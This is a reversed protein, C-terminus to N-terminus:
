AQSSSRANPTRPATAEGSATESIFHLVGVPDTLDLSTIMTSKQCLGHSRQMPINERLMRNSSIRFGINCHFCFGVLHFLLIARVRGHSTLSSNHSRTRGRMGSRGGWRLPPHGALLQGSIKAAGQPLPSQYYQTNM